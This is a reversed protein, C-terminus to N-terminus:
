EEIEAIALFLSSMVTALISVTQLLNKSKELYVVSIIQNCIWTYEEEFFSLSNKFAIKFDNPFEIWFISNFYTHRPFSFATEM